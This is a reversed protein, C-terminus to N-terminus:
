GRLDKFDDCASESFRVRKGNCQCLGFAKAVGVTHDYYQCDCCMLRTVQEEYEIIIVGDALMYRISPSVDDISKLADNVGSQLDRTSDGEIIKIQKM